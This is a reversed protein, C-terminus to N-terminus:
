SGSSQTKRVRYFLNTLPIRLRGQHREIARCLFGILEVASRKADTTFGKNRAEEMTRTTRYYLRSRWLSARPDDTRGALDILEFLSYLYSTSLGYSEASRELEEQLSQLNLWEDWPVCQGYISVANRGSAKADTLASEAEEALRRVPIGPKAITMGVSFHVEPNGATYEAFRRRLELAFRQTTSHPGIFSFDDGGAFITYISDFRTKCLYPVVIAFFANVERSLAAMKAFNM